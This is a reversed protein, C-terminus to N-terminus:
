RRRYSIAPSCLLLANAIVAIWVLSVIRDLLAATFGFGAGTGAWRTAIALVSERVGVGGPTLNISTALDAVVTLLIASRWDVPHGIAEFCLHTRVIRLTILLLGLILSGWFHRHNPPFRPLAELRRAVNAPLLGHFRHHPFILFLLAAMGIGVLVSAVLFREQPSSLLLAPVLGAVSTALLTFLLVALTIWSYLTLSTGHRKRMELAVVGTGAFPLFVNGYARKFTYALTERFRPASQPDRQLFLQWQAAMVIHGTLFLLSLLALDLPDVQALLHLDEAYRLGFWAILGIAVALGLIRWAENSSTADSQM